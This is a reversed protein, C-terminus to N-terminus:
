LFGAFTKRGGGGNNRASLDRRGATMGAFAPIWKQRCVGANVENKVFFIRPFELSERLVGAEGSDNGRFRSDMKASLNGRERRKKRFFHAPIGFKIKAYFKRFELILRGSYIGAKAPIVANKRPIGGSKWESTFRFRRLSEPTRRFPLNKKGLKWSKGNRHLDSDGGGGGSKQRCIGARGATMGAFAPIWKRRCIGTM